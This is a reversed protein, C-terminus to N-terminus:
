CTGEDCPFDVFWFLEPEEFVSFPLVAVGFAGEAEVDAVPVLVGAVVEGVVLLEELSSALVPAPSTM